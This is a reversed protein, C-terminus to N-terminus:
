SKKNEVPILTKSTYAIKEGQIDYAKEIREETSSFLDGQEQPISLTKMLRKEADSNNEIEGNELIHKIEIDYQRMHRCILITRHCIIPDKEACMIAIRNSEMEILLRDIGQHFQFTNSISSYQVKGNIFCDPDNSRPGLEEGLFFYKINHNKLEKELTEQNFQPNFKSYPQSRVDFVVAIYHMSVLDIFKEITHNSHGITYLENSMNTTEITM